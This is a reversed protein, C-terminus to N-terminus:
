RLVIGSRDPLYGAKLRRMIARTGLPFRASILEDFERLVQRNRRTNAVLLSVRDVHDDAM